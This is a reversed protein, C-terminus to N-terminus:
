PLTYGYISIGGVAGPFYYRSKSSRMYTGRERKIIIRIAETEEVRFPLYFELPVTTASMSLLERGLVNTAGASVIVVTDGGAELILTVIGDHKYEISFPQISVVGGVMYFTDGASITAEYLTDYKDTAITDITGLLNIEVGIIEDFHTQAFLATSLILIAITIFKGKM